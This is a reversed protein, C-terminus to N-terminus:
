KKLILEHMESKNMPIDSNRQSIDQFMLIKKKKNIENKKKLVLFDNSSPILPSYHCWNTYLLKIDNPNNAYGITLYPASDKINTWLEIKVDIMSSFTLLEVIGGWEGNNKMKKIYKDFDGEVDDAYLEKNDSIHDVIM